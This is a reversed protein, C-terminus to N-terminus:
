GAFGGDSFVAITGSPLTQAGRHTLHVASRGTTGPGEFAVVRVADIAEGLFPALVSGHGRLDVPEALTFRFLSGAEVGTAASISALNGVAVLDSGELGGAGAGHGVTGINGLGIGEGRGGGGEGIGTLGLGGAGYADGIEDGWMQDTTTAGLQPLTSLTETPTVLERRGYRPAALPFLFSDPRGNVIEVRVGRWAEDTDNHLLAWGQIQATKADALVLRYSARWVPTETVYGLTVNKKGQALLHLEKLVS